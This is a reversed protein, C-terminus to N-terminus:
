EIRGAPAPVALQEEPRSHVVLMSQGPASVAPSVKASHFWDWNSQDKVLDKAVPSWKGPRLRRPAFRITKSGLLAGIRGICRLWLRLLGRLRDASGGSLAHRGGSAGSGLRCAGRNRWGLLMLGTSQQNLDAGNCGCARGQPGNVCERAACARQRRARTLLLSM